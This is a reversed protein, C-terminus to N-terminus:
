VWGFKTFFSNMKEVSIDTKNGEIHAKYIQKLATRKKSKASKDEITQLLTEIAETSTLNSTTMLSMIAVYFIQETPNMKDNDKAREIKIDRNPKILHKSIIKRFMTEKELETLSLLSLLTTSEIGLKKAHEKNKITTEIRVIQKIQDESIDHKLHEEYFDLSGKQDPHTLLEGGKWYLKFFPQAITATARKNYQLGNNLPNKKTPKFRKYGKDLEASPITLRMFEDLLSNWTDQSMLEDFKFDIDTCESRVFTDFDVDFVNLGMLDSYVSKSNDFHLGQFYPKGQIKSNLLIILCEESQGHLTNRREIGIKVKSTNSLKYERAKIKYEEPDFEGTRNNVSIYHDFIYKDKINVLSLPIRLKLSDIRISNPVNSYLRNLNDNDKSM